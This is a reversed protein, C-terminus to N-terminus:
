WWVWGKGRPQLRRSVSEPVNPVGGYGGHRYYTSWFWQYKDEASAKRLHEPLIRREMMGIRQIYRRAQRRRVNRTKM